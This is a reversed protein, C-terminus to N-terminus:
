TGENSNGCNETANGFLGISSKEGNLKEPKGFLEAPLKRKDGIVSVVPTADVAVECIDVVPDHRCDGVAHVAVKVIDIVPDHCLDGVASVHPGGGGCLIDNGWLPVDFTSCIVGDHDM